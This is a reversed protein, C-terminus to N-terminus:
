GVEKGKSEVAPIGTSELNPNAIPVVSPTKSQMKMLKRLMEEIGGFRSEIRNEMTLFKEMGSKFQEIKGKLVDIKKAIMSGLFTSNELWVVVEGITPRKLPNDHVCMCAVDLVRLMQDEFGKGKLLLDFVQSQKGKHIMQNVWVVLVSSDKFKFLEVPRRGTLLELLVVGFSYIDGRLTAVWAQGYEPPIYGLTGVVETTVHTAYPLILRSLGFDAVHAEFYEDLLINSSKIDRHVIHPECTQHIYCLGRSAGQAIKLRTPWDLVSNGDVSEHLWYDLSGNEMYSYILLWSSGHTCYGQLCVLNKHQASSLAEVEARFQREMLCIESSLRKIALKSGDLLTAKYVMGFGGSGIISEQDFNNTAKLIDSMVLNKTSSNEPNPVMVFISNSPPLSPASSTSSANSKLKTGNQGKKQAKMIYCIILISIILIFAGGFSIGFAMSVIIKKNMHKTNSPFENRSQNSCNQLLKGCLKTNGEYSSTPFLDFQGGSPIPGELNNYAVNFSALFHLSNLLSPIMGSLNNTSLDLKELNTLNCLQVPIIGSFKNDSLDLVHLNKLQGIQPLITGHLTNSRLYIAPPLETLQNYQLGSGKEPRIFVPLDLFGQDIRSEFKDVMLAHLGTIQPPIEGSLLNGSLDLYFLYPLSGLWAPVPGTLHNDSLDLVLLKSLNFLWLPVQGTLKCGALSLVQLNQFYRNEWENDTPMAEKFFNKALIIATLKKCDKLIQLATTINRLGDSSLSLYSLAQLELMTPAIEGKLSNRALRLAKLSKLSYLSTPIEGTFNNNGLDLNNLNSLSSFNVVALNGNFNNYRLNLIKLNTCNALEPPLLGNLQNDHLILQELLPMHSISAPLEGSLLNSSLDLIALNLLKTILIGDLIGSLLNFPLSLIKLSTMDFLDKPIPGTLNNVGAQFETLFLCSGLGPPIDGEFQNHSLDMARLEHSLSCISSPFPGFFNNNSINLVMLFRALSGLSPFPGTFFNNSLNLARLSYNGLPPRPLKGSLHNFSVDLTVLSPLLLIETPLDGTLRNYSLNLQTLQSLGVLSNSIRGGLGKIPLSLVAVFGNDDCSIGEWQCCDDNTVWSRLITNNFSFTLNSRFDHLSGRETQSCGYTPENSKAKAQKERGTQQEKVESAKSSTRNM